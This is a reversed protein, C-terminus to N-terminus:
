TASPLSFLERGRHALEEDDEARDEPDEAMARVVILKVKWSLRQCRKRGELHPSATRASPSGRSLDTQRRKASSGIRL